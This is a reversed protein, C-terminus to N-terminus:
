TSDREGVLGLAVIRHALVLDLTTLGTLALVRVYRPDLRVAPVPVGAILVEAVYVTPAIRVAADLRIDNWRERLRVPDLEVARSASALIRCRACPTPTTPPHGSPASAQPM